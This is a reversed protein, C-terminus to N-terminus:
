MEVNNKSYRINEQRIESNRKIANPKITFDLSCCNVKDAINTAFEKINEENLYNIAKHKLGYKMSKFLNEKACFDYNLKTLKFKIDKNLVDIIKNVESSEAMKESIEKKQSNVNENFDKILQVYCYVSGLFDLINQETLKLNGDLNVKKVVFDVLYTNEMKQLFPFTKNELKTFLNRKNTINTFLKENIIALQEISMKKNKLYKQSITKNSIKLKTLKKIQENLINKKSELSDVEDTIKTFYNNISANKMEEKEYVYPLDCYKEVGLYLILKDFAERIENAHNIYKNIINKKYKIIYKWKQLLQDLIPIRDQIEFDDGNYFIENTNKKLQANKEKRAKDAIEAYVMRKKSLEKNKDRERKINDKILNYYKNELNDRDSIFKNNIEYGEEKIKELKQYKLKKLNEKNKEQLSILENELEENDSIIKDLKKKILLKDKRMEEISSSLNNNLLIKKNIGKTIDGLKIEQIVTNKKILKTQEDPSLSRVRRNYNVQYNKKQKPKSRKESLVNLKQEKTPTVPKGQLINYERVKKQHREKLIRFNIKAKEIKRTMSQIELQIYQIEAYEYKNKPTSSIKSFNNNKNSNNVNM